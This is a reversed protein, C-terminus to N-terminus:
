EIRGMAVTTIVVLAGILVAITYILITGLM